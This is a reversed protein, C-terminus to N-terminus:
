PLLLAAGLMMLGLVGAGLWGAPKSSGSTGSRMQQLANVTGAAQQQQQLCADAAAQVDCQALTAAADASVAGSQLLQVGLNGQCQDLIRRFAAPDAAALISLPQGNVTVGAAELGTVLAVGIGCTCSNCFTASSPDAAVAPLLLLLLCCCSPNNTPTHCRQISPTDSQAATPSPACWFHVRGKLPYFEPTYLLPPVRLPAGRPLAQWLSILLLCTGRWGPFGFDGCAAKTTNWFVKSFYRIPCANTTNGVAAQASAQAVLLALIPGLLMSAPKM